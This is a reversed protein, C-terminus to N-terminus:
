STWLPSSSAELLVPQVIADLRRRYARRRLHLGDGTAWHEDLHQDIDSVQLTRALDLLPLEREKASKRIWDNFEVLSTFRGPEKRDHEATVPVVTALVPCIKATVLANIWEEVLATKEAIPLPFYAACEKIIVAKPRPDERICAEIVPSKDFSYLPRVEIGPYRVEIHWLSGVSAGALVIKGSILRSPLPVVPVIQREVLAVGHGVYKKLTGFM